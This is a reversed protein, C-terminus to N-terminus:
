CCADSAVNSGAYVGTGGRTHLTRRRRKERRRRNLHRSRRRGTGRRGRPKALNKRVIWGGPEAVVRTWKKWVTGALFVENAKRPRTWKRWVTGGLLVEIEMAAGEKEVEQEVGEEEAAFLLEFPNPHELVALDEYRVGEVGDCVMGNAVMAPGLHVTESGAPGVLTWDCTPEPRSVIDPSSSSLEDVTGFSGFTIVPVEETGRTEVEEGKTEALIYHSLLPPLSLILHTYVASM